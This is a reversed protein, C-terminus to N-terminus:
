AIGLGNHATAHEPELELARELIAVAEKPRGLENLTLGYNRQARANGPQTSIVNAWMRQESYYARNRDITLVVLAVVTLALM